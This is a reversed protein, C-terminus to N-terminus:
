DKILEFFENYKIFGNKDKELFSKLFEIDELNINGSLNEFLINFKTDEIIGTNTKDYKEILTNIEIKKDKINRIILSILERLKINTIIGNSLKNIENKNKEKEKNENYIEKINGNIFNIKESFKINEEKKNLKDFNCSDLDIYNKIKGELIKKAKIFWKKEINKDNMINEIATLGKKNKININAGNLVLFLLAKDSKNKIAIHLPTNGNNYTQEDITYYKLEKLLTNLMQIDNNKSAEWISCLENEFSKTRDLDIPTKGKIDKTKILISNDADRKILYLITEKQKLQVAYHLVNQGHFDQKYIDLNIKNNNFFVENLLFKFMELNNQKISKILLTEKNKGYQKNFINSIFSFYIKDQEEKYKKKNNILDKQQNIIFYNIYNEYLIILSKLFFLDNLEDICLSLLNNNKKTMKDIISLTAGTYTLEKNKSKFINEKNYIKIKNLENYIKQTTDCQEPSPLNFLFSFFVWLKKLIIFNLISWGNENIYEAKAKKEILLFKFLEFDQKIISLILYNNKEVGVYFSNIKEPEYYKITEIDLDTTAINLMSSIGSNNYNNNCSNNNINNIDKNFGYLSEKSNINKEQKLLFQQIKKNNTIEIPKKNQNDLVDVKAHFYVLIEIKKMNNINDTKVLYHIPYNGDKDPMNVINGININNKHINEYPDKIERKVNILQNNEENEDNFNYYDIEEDDKKIIGKKILIQEKNNINNDFDNIAKECELQYETTYVGEKEINNNDIPICKDVYKCLDTYNKFDICHCIINLMEDDVNNLCCYHILNRGFIDTKDDLTVGSLLTLKIMNINNHILLYFLGNRGYEDRENVMTWVEIDNLAQLLYAQIHENNNYKCSQLYNRYIIIDNPNNKGIEFNLNFNPNDNLLDLDEHKIRVIKAKHIDSMKGTHIYSSIDFYKYKKKFIILKELKKIKDKENNLINNLEEHAAFNLNENVRPLQCIGSQIRLKTSSKARKNNDNQKNILLDPSLNTGEINKEEKFLNNNNKVDFVDESMKFNNKILQQFKENDKKLKLLQKKRQKDKIEREKIKMKNEKQLIIYKYEAEKKMKNNDVNKINDNYIYNKLSLNNIRDNKNKYEELGKNLKNEIKNTRKINIPNEIVKVMRNYENERKKEMLNKKTNYREKITKEKEMEKIFDRNKQKRQNLQYLLIKTDEEEKKLEKILEDANILNDNEKKNTKDYNFFNYNDENNPSNKKNGNNKEKIKNKDKKESKKM